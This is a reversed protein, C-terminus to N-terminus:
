STAKKRHLPAVSAPCALKTSRSVRPRQDIRRELLDPLKLAGTERTVLGPVVDDRRPPIFEYHGSSCRPTTTDSSSSNMESCDPRFLAEAVFGGGGSAAGSSRPDGPCPPRHRDAPPQERPRRQGPPHLAPAPPRRGRRPRRHRGAARQDDLYALSTDDVGPLPLRARRAPRGRRRPPPWTPRSSRSTPLSRPTSRPRARRPLRCSTGRM